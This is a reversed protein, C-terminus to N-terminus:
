QTDIFFNSFRYSFLKFCINTLAFHPLVRLSKYGILALTKFHKFNVPNIPKKRVLFNVDTFDYCMGASGFGEGMKQVGEEGSRDYVNRKEEDSLVEYASTLDQFQEEADESKNVDPHLM